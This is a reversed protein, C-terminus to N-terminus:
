FTGNDITFHEVGCQSTSGDNNADGSYTVQWRWTGSAKAIFTTNTTSYTGNGTVDVTQTYAPTGSCTADSPSYLNFVVTGGADDTLGSVTADDNPILNPVTSIASHNKNVVLIESQCASTAGDNNADGSYVAQWYFTGANNFTIPDSDPVSGNIVTKTGADQPNDTCTDNSYVTYKVTGGADATTGTLTASDHVATGIDVSTASLTTTISPTAKNVVLHESTCESTTGDNNADGSYVAQWYFDGANNFTIPDSDPVDGNTVTKTGADQPNDTCTDNSYVTYKVTGGADATAGTLTASDHVTAGVTVSEASLKTAITPKVNIHNTYTCDVTGGGAMTISATADSHTVSTGDGTATCDLSKLTWGAPPASETVSYSGAVVDTYTRTGGNSLSFTAPTLAGTTTYDFTSDGNETIKHITITGCNSISVPRPAIFDKVEAPFSASSRSKLFASAFAECTSGFVGSATLNIAAEGFTLGPLSVGAIPDNVTSTNVAGEAFGAASLNVRNGWCPLANRSLCQSTPGSTVWKLLGLVPNGGGNTFDFTILLDGATRNLAKPGTTTLNPQTKQNIEFDMNASGLVNSREWALYLYNSNNAFENAAYFRTLDSKNPPISGTVVSVNADDEKTGQGFANDGTGSPLDDGRVRNPANSWDTNGATNVVLNGDSGEFTSGPLALGPYVLAVLLLLAVSLPVAIGARLSRRRLKSVDM